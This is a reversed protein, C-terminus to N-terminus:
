NKFEELINENIIPWHDLNYDEPTNIIEQLFLSNGLKQCKSCKFVLETGCDNLSIETLGFLPHKPCKTFCKPLNNLPQEASNSINRDM